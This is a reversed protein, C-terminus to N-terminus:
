CCGEFKRVSMYQNQSGPYRQSRVRHGLPRLETGPLLL